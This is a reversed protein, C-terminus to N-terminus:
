TRAGDGSIEIQLISNPHPYLANVCLWRGDKLPTMRGWGAEAVHTTEGWAFPGSPDARACLSLCLGVIVLALARLLPTAM